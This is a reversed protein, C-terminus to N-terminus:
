TNYPKMFRTNIVNWDIIKWINKLYKRKDSGYDIQFAHEWMDIIVVIDQQIQHNHITKIKGDRSLYIWGSGQLKLAEEAFQEVFNDFGKFKSKIFSGIPGNPENNNRPMRFQTFWLNHLIYGAYNFVSDGEKKNFREAYGRWLKFHNRLNASGLVPLLSNETYTLEVLELDTPKSKSELLDIIERM